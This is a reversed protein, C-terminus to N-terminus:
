ASNPFLRTKALPHTKVSTLAWAKLGLLRIRMRTQGTIRTLQPLHSLWM